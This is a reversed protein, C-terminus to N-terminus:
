PADTSRPRGALWSDLITLQDDTPDLFAVGMGVGKHAYIVKGETAFSRDDRSIVVKLLTSVPFPNLIDVYCGKRSIKTIKGIVCTQTTTEIIEAVAIFTYRPVTRRNSYSPGLDSPSVLSPGV